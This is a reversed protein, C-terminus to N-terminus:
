RADTVPAVTADRRFDVVDYLRGGQGPQAWRVLRIDDAMMEGVRTVAGPDGLRLYPQAATVGDPVVVDLRLQRCTGDAPGDGPELPLVAADSSPGAMEAYWRIEAQAGSSATGVSVVLSLTDGPSVPVRHAPYAVVDFDRAPQRVAHLGRNGTCAADNGVRTYKGLSWLLPAGGDTGTDMREISGTGYLLDEGLVVDDQGAPLWAGPPLPVVDGATGTIPPTGPTPLRTTTATGSGLLLPGDLLGSAVRASSDALGGVTPVPAYDSIAFPDAQTRVPTGGRLDVRLLYSRLTSWLNQDFVLNGMTEAVLADGERVVGGVVHPHGNVVLTAGAEAAVSTLERVDPDQTQQYETGGHMMVVVTDAQAKATAIARRMPTPACEAAGGQTATAVYLVPHADGTVTTCGIFAVRQGRAEVYAPRWAEAPTRGAGFHALGAAEVTRLTSDLGAGLADYVHNNGLDVVDVGARKLAVAAAPATAFVLDKTQHFRQPRAGRFYPDQVLSTELNVVTLDADALLPAIEDLVALHQQVGAGGQLWTDGSALPEYFRRGLMADGGFRLSLSDATRRVLDVAPQQGPAVALVRESHGPAGVRVLTPSDLRLTVRGDADARHPDGSGDLETVWGDGLPKGSDADVVTTLTTLVPDVVAAQSPTPEPSPAAQSWVFGLFLSCVTLAVAAPLILRTM